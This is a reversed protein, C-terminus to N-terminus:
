QNGGQIIQKGYEFFGRANAFQPDPALSMRYKIHEKLMKPLLVAGGGGLVILETESPLNQIYREVLTGVQSAYSTVISAIDLTYTIGAIEMYGDKIIKEISQDSKIFARHAKNFARKIEEYIRSVGLPFSKAASQIYKGKLFFVLDLTHYGIDLVAVNKEFAEPSSNAVYSFFIGSGQPIVKIEPLIIRREHDQIEAEKIKKTMDSVYGKSYYGPPLGLVMLQLPSKYRSLCYGLAAFYADSLLFDERITSILGIGERVVGEGVAFTQGNVKITDVVHGFSSHEVHTSIATPFISYAVGNPTTFCTKTYCYGIDIGILM